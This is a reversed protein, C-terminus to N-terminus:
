LYTRISPTSRVADLLEDRGRALERLRSRQVDEALCGPHIGHRRLAAMVDLAAAAEGSLSDGHPRARRAAEAVALPSLLHATRWAVIEEVHRVHRALQGPGGPDGGTGAGSWVLRQPRAGAKRLARWRRSDLRREHLDHVVRAFALATRGRLAGAATTGLEGLQEDVAAEVAAAELSVACTGPATRGDRHAQDLGDWYADLVQGYREASHVLAAHVGIGEAVCARVVDLGADTAAITVLFNPRGVAVAFARAEELASRRDHALRADLEGCVWGDLGDTDTSVHALLDCAWRADYALLARVMADPSVRQRAVRGLQDLYAHDERRRFERTLASASLAVGTVRVTTIWTRLSGSTLEPRGVDGLWVSVGEAALGRLVASDALIEAARREHGM